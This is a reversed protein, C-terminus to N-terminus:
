GGRPAFAALPLPPDPCLGPQNTVTEQRFRNADGPRLCAPTERKVARTRLTREEETKTPQPARRADSESFFASATRAKPAFYHRAGLARSLLNSLRQPAKPDHPLRHGSAFPIRKCPPSRRRFSEMLGAFRLTGLCGTALPTTPLNAAPKGDSARQALRHYPRRVSALRGRQPPPSARPFGRPLSCYHPQESRECTGGFVKAPNEAAHPARTMRRRIRPHM